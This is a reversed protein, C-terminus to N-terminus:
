KRQGSTIEDALPSADYLKRLCEIIARSDVAVARAQTDTYIVDLVLSHINGDFILGVVEGAKDVVPSGSNGGIIDATCVFNYPTDLNLKDKREIWRQTLQTDPDFHRERAREYAGGLTTFPAVTRGSEEYGRIAGFALRLTFTADPYENEGFAEFRAAAIKAYGEREASEVEDEFKTRLVRSEPDLAAALQILPDDSAAVAKKGGEVLKRRAEIDKLATNQVLSAARQQPSMGGLALKVLPDDAGLMEALYSLGSALRFIELEDYIPADSYLELFVSDLETDRFEPLRDANPKTQEETLRVIEKAAAFLDSRLARGRGELLQYRTYFGRYKEEAAAIKEWADGWKSRHDSNSEVAARLKAEAQHKKTMLAPDLLGAMLGTEAKRSNQVGALDEGAIRRNEASRSAFTMTQVERRWLRHLIAPLDVDRLFRVHDMTNLRQTSGPHGSVFVLEGEDAGDGWKLFHESRLPKGEEYIRFFCMDLDYRPFEFNDNDGGFFAIQHEPAIVLRIDTYRRYSYLHYM